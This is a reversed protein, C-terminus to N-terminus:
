HVSPMSHSEGNLESVSAPAMEEYQQLMQRAAREGGFLAARVLGAQRLRERLSPDNAVRELTRSWEGVDTASELLVGADGVVERVAAGAYAIVPTGCAMAELPALGFGEHLSPFLFALAGGYLGPLKEQPVHGTLLVAARAEPRALVRFFREDRGKSYHEGVLVLKGAFGTRKKFDLFAEVLVALNKKLSLNGVHVFYELGNLGYDGCSREIQQASAIRFIPDYACHIVRIRERPVQYCNVLDVATAESIAIVRDIKRYQRPLIHRWYWVDVTPYAEPHRLTTLDYVTVISKVGTGLVTQNKLFHV